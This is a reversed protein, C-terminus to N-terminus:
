IGAGNHYTPLMAQLQSPAFHVKPSAIVPSPLVIPPIVVRLPPVDLELSTTIPNLSDVRLPTDTKASLTHEIDTMIISTMVKILQKLFSVHYPPLRFGPAPELLAQQISTIGALILDATSVFPMVIKTSFWRVLYHHQLHL